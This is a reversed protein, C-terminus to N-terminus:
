QSRSLPSSSIERSAVASNISSNLVSASGQSPNGGQAASHAPAAGEVPNGAEPSQGVGEGALDADLQAGDSDAANVALETESSPISEGGPSVDERAVSTGSSDGANASSNNDAAAAVAPMSRKPLVLEVADEVLQRDEVTIEPVVAPACFLYPEASLM